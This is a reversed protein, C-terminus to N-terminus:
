ACMEIPLAPLVKHKTEPVVMSLGRNDEQHEGTQNLLRRLSGVLKSKALTKRKSAFSSSADDKSAFSSSADDKSPLSSTASTSRFSSVRSLFGPKPSDALAPRALSDLQKSKNKNKKTPMNSLHQITDCSTPWSKDSEKKKRLINILDQRVNFFSPRQDPNVSWGARLLTKLEEFEAYKMSPRKNDKFVKSAFQVPCVINAFPTQTTVIQWLLISFSYVDAPFGYSSDMTAVEPAMYRPTGAGGTMLRPQSTHQESSTLTDENVERSLGFDFIKIRGHENFGINAPKLDSYLKVHTLPAPINAIARYCSKHVNM